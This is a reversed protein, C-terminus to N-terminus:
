KNNSNVIAVPVVKASNQYLLVDCDLVIKDYIKLKKLADVLSTNNVDVKLKRENVDNDVVEDVKLIYREDYKINQGQANLFEGGDKKELGKFVFEGKARM